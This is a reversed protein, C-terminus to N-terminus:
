ATYQGRMGIPAVFGHDEPTHGLHHTGPNFGYSVGLVDLAVSAAVYLSQRELAGYELALFKVLVYLFIVWMANLRIGDVEFYTDTVKDTHSQVCDLVLKRLHLPADVTNSVFGGRTSWCADAAPIRYLVDNWRSDLDSLDKPTVGRAVVHSGRRRASNMIRLIKHYAAVDSLNRGLRKPGGVRPDVALRMPVLAGTPIVALGHATNRAQVAAMMIQFEVLGVAFTIAVPPLVPGQFVMPPPPVFVLRGIAGADSSDSSSGCVIQHVHVSPHAAAPAVATAAPVAATTSSKKRFLTLAMALATAGAAVFAALASPDFSDM